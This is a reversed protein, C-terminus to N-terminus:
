SSYRENGPARNGLLINNRQQILKLEGDEVEEFTFSTRGSRRIQQGQSTCENSGDGDLDENIVRQCIWNLNWNVEAQYTGDSQNVRIGFFNLQIRQYSSFVDRMASRLSGRNSAGHSYDDHVKRIVDVEDENEYARQIEDLQRQVKRRLESQEGSSNTSTPLCGGLILTAISAVIGLALSVRITGNGTLTM